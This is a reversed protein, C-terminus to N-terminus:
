CAKAKAIVYSVWDEITRYTTTGDDNPWSALSDPNDAQLQRLANEFVTVAEIARMTLKQSDTQGAIEQQLRCCHLCLDGVVGIAKEHTMDKAAHFMILLQDIEPAKRFMAALEFNHRNM